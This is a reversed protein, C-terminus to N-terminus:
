RFTGKHHRSVRHGPNSCDERRRNVMRRSWTSTNNPAQYRRKCGIVTPSLSMSPPAHAQCNFSKKPNFMIDTFAAFQLLDEALEPNDALALLYLWDYFATKPQLPWDSDEFHFRMLAGSSKLRPDTKAVRPDKAYLDTYQRKGEFVKSGQFATEVTLERGHKDRLSM